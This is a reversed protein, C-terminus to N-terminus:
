RPKWDEGRLEYYNRLLAAEYRLLKFGCKELVRASARNEPMTFAGILKLGVEEFGHRLSFEVLESAIGRGQFDPHIFYSIEVGWGPDFPDINLGGWGIVRGNTCNLITWPAFGNTKRAAAHTRLWTACAARSEAIHTFRMHDRNGQIEYLPDIDSDDFERLILRATQFQTM